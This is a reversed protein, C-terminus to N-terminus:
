PLNEIANIQKSKIHSCLVWNTLNAAGGGNSAAAAAVSSDLKHLKSLHIDPYSTSLRRHIAYYKSICCIVTFSMYYSVLVHFRRCTFRIFRRLQTHRRLAALSCTEHEIM